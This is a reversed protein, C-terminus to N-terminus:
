LNSDSVLETSEVMCFPIELLEHPEKELILNGNACVERVVGCVLQGNTHHVHITKGWFVQFQKWRNYITGFDRKKWHHYWRNLAELLHQQLNVLCVTKNTEQKISTAIPYLKDNRDFENTVNLFLGVIVGQAVGDVWVVETLIGGCKKEKLVFDNPWKIGVGYPHLAEVVGVTFAM